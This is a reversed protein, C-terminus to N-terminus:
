SSISEISASAPRSSSLAPQIKASKRSDRFSPVEMEVFCTDKVESRYWLDFISKNPKLVEGAHWYIKQPLKVKPLNREMEEWLAKIDPKQAQYIVLAPVHGFKACPIGTVLYLSGAQPLCNTIDTPNINLGGCIIIQDSRGEVTLSTEDYSGLDESLYFGQDTQRSGQGLHRVFLSPGRFAIKHDIIRLEMHPLVELEDHGVKSAALQSCAETSGYTLSINLESQCAEHFLEASCPGGGILILNAQQLLHRSQNDRLHNHLQAPTLSVLQIAKEPSKSEVLTGLWLLSRFCAMFGGIHFRPLTVLTRYGKQKLQYFDRTGKFSHLLAGYTHVVGKPTGTSGSTFIALVEQEMPILARTPLPTRDSGKSLCTAPSYAKCMTLLYPDTTVVVQYPITTIQQAQSEVPVYHNLPGFIAKVQLCAMFLSLEYHLPLKHALVVEGQSIGLDQLAATFQFALQCLEGYTVIGQDSEIAPKATQTGLYTLLCEEPATTM